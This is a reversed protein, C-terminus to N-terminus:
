SAPFNNIIYLQVSLSRLLLVQITITLLMFVQALYVPSADRLYTTAARLHTSTVRKNSDLLTALTEAHLECKLILDETDIV